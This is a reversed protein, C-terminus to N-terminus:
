VLGVCVAFACCDCLVLRRVLWFGGVLMLVLVAFGARRCYVVGSVLCTGCVWRFYHLVLDLGFVVFGAFEFGM